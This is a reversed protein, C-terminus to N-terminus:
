QVKMGSLAAQLLCTEVSACDGEPWAGADFYDFMSLDDVATDPITDGDGLFDFSPVGSDLGLYYSAPPNHNPDDPNFNSPLFGVGKPASPKPSPFYWGPPLGTTQRILAHITRNLSLILTPKRVLKSPDALINLLDITTNLVGRIQTFVGQVDRQIQSLAKDLEAAFKVHLLKLIQLFQRIHQIAKMFPAVYQKYIKDIFKRAKQLFQIIPRLKSELFRSLKQLGSFIKTFIGKFFENWLHVFLGGVAKFAKLMFDAVIGIVNWIFQFVQIILNFLYVLIQEIASAVGGLASIIGNLFDM